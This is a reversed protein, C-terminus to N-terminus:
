KGGKGSKKKKEHTHFSSESGATTNGANKKELLRREVELRIHSVVKEWTLQEFDLDAGFAGEKWANWSPPLHKILLGGRVRRDVFDPFKATNLVQTLHNLTIIEAFIDDDENISFNIYEIIYQLINNYDLKLYHRDLARM